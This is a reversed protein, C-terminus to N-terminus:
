AMNLRFVRYEGLTDSGSCYSGEYGLMSIMMLDLCVRMKEITSARTPLQMTLSEFRVFKEWGWSCSSACLHCVLRLADLDQVFSTWYLAVRSMLGLGLM